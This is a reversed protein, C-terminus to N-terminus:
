SDIVVFQSGNQSKTLFLLSEDLNLESMLQNFHSLSEIKNHNVETLIMGPVLGARHAQGGPQIALILVGESADIGM